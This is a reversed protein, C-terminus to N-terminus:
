PNVPGRPVRRYLAVGAAECVRRFDRLYAPDAALRRAIVDGGESREEMAVWNVHDAPSRLAEDWINGNGEHVFHQIDYGAHSLNQMYHALSGMSMLIVDRPDREALCATVSERARTKAVDWTGEVVMAAEPDFPRTTALTGLLVAAAALRQV